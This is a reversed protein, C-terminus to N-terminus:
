PVAPPAVGGRSTGLCGSALIPVSDQLQCTGQLDGFCKLALGLLVFTVARSAHGCSWLTQPPTSFLPPNGAAKRSVSGTRAQLASISPAPAFLLLLLCRLAPQGTLLPVHGRDWRSSIQEANGPPPPQRRGPEAGQRLGRQLARRHPHPPVGQAPPSIGQHAMCLSSIWLFPRKKGRGDGGNAEESGHPFLHRGCRQCAPLICTLIEGGKGEPPM